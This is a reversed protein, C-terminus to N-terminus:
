NQKLIEFFLDDMVEGSDEQQTERVARVVNPDPGQHHQDVVRRVEQQLYVSRSRQTVCERECVILRVCRIIESRNRSKM